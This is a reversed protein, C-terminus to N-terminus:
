LRTIRQAIDDVAGAIRATEDNVRLCLAIHENLTEKAAASGVLVQQKLKDLQERLEDVRECVERVHSDVLSSIADRQPAGYQPVPVQPPPPAHRQGHLRTAASDVDDRVNALRAREAENPFPNTRVLRHDANM